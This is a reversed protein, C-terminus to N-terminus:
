PRGFILLWMLVILLMYTEASFILLLNCLLSLMLIFDLIYTGINVSSWKMHFPTEAEWGRKSALVFFRYLVVTHCFM